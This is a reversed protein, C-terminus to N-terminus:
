KEKEQFSLYDEKREKGFVMKNEQNEQGKGRKGDSEKDKLKPKAAAQAEPAAIAPIMMSLAVASVIISRFQRKM